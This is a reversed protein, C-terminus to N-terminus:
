PRRGGRLTSGFAVTDLKRSLHEELEFVHKILAVILENIERQDRRIDRLTALLLKNDIKGSDSIELDEAV